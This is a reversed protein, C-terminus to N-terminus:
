RAPLAFAVYIGGSESPGNPKSRGGGAPVVLFQRGGVEYTCPTANGALPLTAEWLREGTAKDFGRVKKDFNTAAIFVIGGATVVPGGYNESGTNTIGQAALEPYEGLPIQWAYESTSLNIASLTGWPPAIAPYGDPDLFKRYGTFRYTMAIASTDHGARDSEGTRLFTVLAGLAASPLAPFGPMRGAGQRIITNLEDASRRQGIGVLSPIQPPTGIM